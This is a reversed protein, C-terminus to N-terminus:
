RSPASPLNPLLAFRNVHHMIRLLEDQVAALAKRAGHEEAHGFDELRLLFWAGDRFCLAESCITQLPVGEALPVDFGLFVSMAKAGVETRVASKIPSQSDRYNAIIQLAQELEIEHMRYVGAEGTIITDDLLWLTRFVPM